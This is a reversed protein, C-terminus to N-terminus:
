QSGERSLQEDLHAALRLCLAIITLTPNAWGGTPFVSSGAIYLNSYDHVRCHGDVVGTASSESMRTTGMHHYGGIPHNSVTPDVPWRLNDEDTLWDSLALHGVGLRQLEEDLTQGLAVVSAKDQANLRWDLDALPRGFADLQDSLVVRSAPNPAQEARVIAYLATTGRNARWREIRSRVTKHIWKKLARFAHHAARGRNTPNLEYKLRLYLRKDLSVGKEPARQLKFTLASNLSRQSRQAQDSLRLVPALPPGSPPFRKQLAEWLEFPKNTHIRGIRGHPHEMFYRGVQDHRNGIGAPEVDRSCLLLRANEIGGAAMVFVRASLQHEPGSLTRIVLHRLHAADDTAQLHVVNAHLCVSVRESNILDDCRAHAFRESTEDFRWLRASIRESPLPDETVDLTEWVRHEYNFEGLELQQHAARYWPELESRAFPWGSFPVWDRAEFDINDLLACRGGWINTTGGFFRLRSHALEYYDFGINKGEFLAQTQNDFDLGGSELLCVRHGLRSLERALSIGAAGAGVICVDSELVSADTLDHLDYLM